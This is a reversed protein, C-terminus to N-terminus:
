GRKRGRRELEGRIAVCEAGVDIHKGTEADTVGQAKRLIEALAKYVSKQTYQGPDPQTKLYSEVNKKTRRLEQLPKSVAMPYRGVMRAAESVGYGEVMVLRCGEKRLENRMRALDTLIYFQENTIRM